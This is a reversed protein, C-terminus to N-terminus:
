HQMKFHLWSGATGLKFVLLRETKYRNSFVGSLVTVHDPNTIISVSTYVQVWKTNFLDLVTFLVFWEKVYVSLSIFTWLFLVLHENSNCM